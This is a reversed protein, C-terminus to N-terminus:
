RIVRMYAGLAQHRKQQDTMAQEVNDKAHRAMALLRRNHELMVALFSSSQEDGPYGQALWRRRELDLRTVQEWDGMEAAELMRGSVALAQELAHYAQSSAM